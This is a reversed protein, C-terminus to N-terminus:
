LRGPWSQNVQSTLVPSNLSMLSAGRERDGKLQLYIKIFLIFKESFKIWDLAIGIMNLEVIHHTTPTTVHQQYHQDTKDITPIMLVIMMMKLMMMFMM